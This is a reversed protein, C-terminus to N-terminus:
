LYKLFQASIKAGMAMKQDKTINAIAIFGDMTKLLLLFFTPWHM